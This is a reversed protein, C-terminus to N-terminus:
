CNRFCRLWLIPLRCITTFQPITDRDTVVFTMTTKYQPQYSLDSVIYTGVGVMLAVLLVLLWRKAVDQVLVIPDFPLFGLNEGQMKSDREM